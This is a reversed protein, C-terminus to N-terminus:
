EGRVGRAVMSSLLDAKQQYAGYLYDLALENEPEERVTKECTAIFKDLIALNERYAATVNPSNRRVLAVTRYEIENMQSQATAIKAIEPAAEPGRAVPVFRPSLQVGVLVAGALLLALYAGALVPRPMAPLWSTWGAAWSQGRILGEAALQGRLALWVRAPPGVEPLERAANRIAELDTILGRCLPCQALHAAAAAGHAGEMWDGAQRRFENCQM